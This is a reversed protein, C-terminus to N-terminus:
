TIMISKEDFILNGKKCKPCNFKDIHGPYYIMNNKCTPCKVASFSFCETPIKTKHPHDKMYDNYNGRFEKKINELNSEFPNEVPEIYEVIILEHNKDCHTCFANLYLGDACEHNGPHTLTKIEGNEFKYEHPGSVFIKFNCNNCNFNHFTAM